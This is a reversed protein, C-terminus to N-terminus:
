CFSFSIKSLAHTVGNPSCGIALVVRTTLFFEECKEFHSKRFGLTDESQYLMYMMSSTKVSLECILRNRTLTFYMEFTNQFAFVADRLCWVIRCIGRVMNLIKCFTKMECQGFVNRVVHHSRSGPNLLSLLAASSSKGGMNRCLSMSKPRICLNRLILRLQWIRWSLYM